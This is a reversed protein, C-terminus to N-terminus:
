PHDAGNSFDWPMQLFDPENKALMFMAWGSCLQEDRHPEHCHFPIGEMVCKFADMQTSPSGNALHRGERFACSNCRPPLEPMRLRAKPEVQDCFRALHMGLERGESTARNRIATM